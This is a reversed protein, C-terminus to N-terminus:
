SSRRAISSTRSAQSRNRGRRCSLMFSSTPMSPQTLRSTERCRAWSVSAVMASALVQNANLLKIPVILACCM